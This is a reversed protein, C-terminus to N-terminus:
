ESASSTIRRNTEYDTEARENHDPKHDEPQQRQTRPDHESLSQRFAISFPPAHHSVIRRLNYCEV